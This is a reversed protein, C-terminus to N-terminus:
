AMRVRAAFAMHLMQIESVRQGPAITQTNSTIESFINKLTSKRSSGLRRVRRILLAAQDKAGVTRNGTSMTEVLIDTTGVPANAGAETAM